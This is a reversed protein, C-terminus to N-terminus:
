GSLRKADPRSLQRTTARLEITGNINRWATALHMPVEPTIVNPHATIDAPCFNGTTALQELLPRARFDYYALLPEVGPSGALRPLAAWVGPRRRALLWQLADSCLFPLDCATILWSARPAWRMAALMGALPGRVDPVDPLQAYGAVEPPIAGDGSIAIRSCAQSLVKITAALWTTGNTRVLHKPSGMRTSKGGILICGFIPTKRWQEMLFSELLPLALALRDTDRDLIAVSKGIGAPPSKEGDGLLWIKNPIIGKHGEVLIVDYRNALSLLDVSPDSNRAQHVRFFQQQPGRLFVDAGVQYFRDSDKGPHDVNIGHVDHKVVAVKLGKGTLCPVIREILTTKGSGSWGCIGFVPLDEIISQDQM